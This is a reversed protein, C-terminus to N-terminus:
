PYLTSLEFFIISLCSYISSYYKNCPYLSSHESNWFSNIQRPKVAVFQHTSPSSGAPPCHPSPAPLSALCPSHQLLELLIDLLVMTPSKHSSHNSVVNRKKSFFNFHACKTKYIIWQGQSSQCIILVLFLYVLLCITDLCLQLLYFCLRIM